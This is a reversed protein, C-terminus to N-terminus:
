ESPQKEEEERQVERFVRNLGSKIQSEIKAKREPRFIAKRYEKPSKTFAPDNIMDDLRKNHAEIYNSIQDADTCDLMRKFPTPVLHVNTIAEAGICDAMESFADYITAQAHLADIVICCQGALVLPAFWTAGRRVGHM